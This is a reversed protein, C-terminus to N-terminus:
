FKLRSIIWLWSALKKKMKQTWSEEDNDKSTQKAM